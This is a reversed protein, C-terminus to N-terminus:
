KKWPEKVVRELPVYRPEPREAERTKLNFRDGPALLYFPGGSDLKRGHDYIVVYGRGMVEFRDRRVVIATDEDIGIGLLHPNKEIVPVLDFLRNRRLLHQDITVNKLFGMGEVHDGIMITNGSTDGRALFSGQITAGASTGCIVGGRDLIGRMEEHTRTNLYADALRWQRGGTFFVGTAKRLPAVFADSAAVARDRTHLPVVERAGAKQLALMDDRYFAPEDGEMATPVLVLSANAGGALEVCRRWIDDGLDGGGIIVLTGRAPGVEPPGPPPTPPQAAGLAPLGALLGTLLSRRM